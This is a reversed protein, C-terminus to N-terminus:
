SPTDFFTVATPNWSSPLHINVPPSSQEALIHSKLYYKIIRESNAKILIHVSFSSLVLCKKFAPEIYILSRAVELSLLILSEYRSLWRSLYKRLLGQRWQRSLSSTSQTCQEFPKLILARVQRHDELWIGTSKSNQSTSKGWKTAM